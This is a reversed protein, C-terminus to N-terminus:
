FDCKFPKIDIIERSTKEIKKNTLSSEHFLQKGYLRSYTSVLGDQKSACIPKKLNSIFPIKSAKPLFNIKSNTVCTLVWLKVTYKCNLLCIEIPPCGTYTNHMFVFSTQLFFLWIWKGMSECHWFLALLNASFVGFAWIKDAAWNTQGIGFILVDM